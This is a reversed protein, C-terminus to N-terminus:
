LIVLALIFILAGPAVSASAPDTKMNSISGSTFAWWLFALALGMGIIGLTFGALGLRGGQGAQRSYPGVLGGLSLVLALVFSGGNPALGSMVYFLGAFISAVGGWLIVKPSFMFQSGEMIREMLATVFLDVCIHLWLDIVGSMGRRHYEDRFSDRFVQVLQTEYHERFKKPYAVLLARYICVSVSLSNTSSINNM